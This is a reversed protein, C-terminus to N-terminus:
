DNQHGFMESSAIKKAVNVVALKRTSCKKTLSFRHHELVSSVPGERGPKSCARTTSYPDFNNVDRLSPHLM